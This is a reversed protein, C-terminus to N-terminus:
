IRLLAGSSLIGLTLTLYIALFFSAACIFVTIAATHMELGFMDRIGRYLTALGLGLSPVLIVFSFPQLMSVATLLSAIFMGISPAVMGYSVATLGHFYRGKGGLANAVVQVTWGFVVSILTVTFFAIVVLSAAMLPTATFVVPMFVAFSVSFAIIFSNIAIIRATNNIDKRKAARKISGAPDNIIELSM